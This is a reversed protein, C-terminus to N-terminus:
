YADGIYDYKSNNFNSSGTQNSSDSKKIARPATTKTGRLTSGSNLTSEGDRVSPSEYAPQNNTASPARKVPQQSGTGPNPEAYIFNGNNNSIGQQGVGTVQTSSGSSSSKATYPEENGKPLKEELTKEISENWGSVVETPLSGVKEKMKARYEEVSLSREYDRTEELRVLEMGRYNQMALADALVSIEYPEITGWYDHTIVKVPLSPNPNFQEADSILSYSHNNNTAQTSVLLLKQNLFGVGTKYVTASYADEGSIENPMPSFEEQFGRLRSIFATNGSYATLETRLHDHYKMAQRTQSSGIQSFMYVVPVMVAIFGLVLFLAVGKKNNRNKM